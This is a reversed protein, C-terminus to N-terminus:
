VVIGDMNQPIIQQQYIEVAVHVCKGNNCATSNVQVPDINKLPNTKNASMDLVDSLYITGPQDGAPELGLLLTYKSYFQIEDHKSALCDLIPQTDDVKKLIHDFMPRNDKVALKCMVEPIASKEVYKNDLLFDVASKNNHTVAAFSLLDKQEADPIFSIQSLISEAMNYQETTDFQKSMLVMKLIWSADEYKDFVLHSTVMKVIEPKIHSYFMYNGCVEKELSITGAHEVLVKVLEFNNHKIAMDIPRGYQSDSVGSYCAYLSLDVKPMHDLLTKVESENWGNQIAMMLPTYDIINKVNVDGGANVYAIISDMDRENIADFINLKIKKPPTVDVVVNIDKANVNVRVNQDKPNPMYLEM